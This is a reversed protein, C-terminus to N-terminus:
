LGANWTRWPRLHGPCNEISRVAVSTHFRFEIWLGLSFRRLTKKGVVVGLIEMSKSPVSALKAGRWIRSLFTRTRFGAGRAFAAPAPARSRLLAGCLLAPARQCGKLALAIVRPLGLCLAGTGRVRAALRLFRASKSQVQLDMERMETFRDRLDM